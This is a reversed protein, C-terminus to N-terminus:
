TSNSIDNCFAVYSILHPLGSWVLGLGLGLGLGLDLGLGLGLGLGSGLGSGLWALRVLRRQEAVGGAGTSAPRRQRCADVGGEAPVGTALALTLTRRYSSSLASESM